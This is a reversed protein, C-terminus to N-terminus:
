TELRIQGQKGDLESLNSVDQRRNLRKGATKEAEHAPVVRDRGVCM